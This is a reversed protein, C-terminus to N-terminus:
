HGKGAVDKLEELYDYNNNNQAHNMDADQLSQVKTAGPKAEFM